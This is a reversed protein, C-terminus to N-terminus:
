SYPRHVCRKFLLLTCSVLLYHNAETSEQKNLFFVKGGTERRAIKAIGKKSTAPFFEYPKFVFIFFFVSTNALLRKNRLLALSCFELVRERAAFNYPQRVKNKRWCSGKGETIYLLISLTSKDTLENNEYYPVTNHWKNGVDKLM